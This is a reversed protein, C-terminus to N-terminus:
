SNSGFKFDHGVVIYQAQLGRFLIDHCFASASLRALRSNFNLACLVDVGLQQILRAKLKFPTILEVQFRNKFYQVPLPEMTVAVSQRSETKAAAITKKILAQHGRHVGDFSGITIVANRFNPLTKLDKYVNM